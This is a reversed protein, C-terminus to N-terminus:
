FAVENYIVEGNTKPIRVFVIHNKRPDLKLRVLKRNSPTFVEVSPEKLELRAIQFDKPLMRWQRTDARNMTLSYVAGLIGGITGGRKQLEYSIVTQTVTRTIARTMILPFRKKFETKVVKDMSAVQKTKVVTTKNKISLYRYARPGEKFSPLAIGAYYVKNTVLFLPINFRKEIKKPGEGDSFIIWVYRRKGAGHLSSAAKLAYKLDEKVYPAAPEDDKIMGYTEKLIDAAKAYDGASIFYLGSMYSAFPNVFDPYPKFAFLNSYKQMIVDETKKNTITKKAQKRQHPDISVNKKKLKKNAEKKIEHKEREIEKAFFEKARRQRELARNFEIRASAVDQQNMFDMGKYTNVMIGEYIKPRYDMFTDNTLVAGTNALFKQALIEEDYQKIKGESKDFFYISQNFDQAYRSVLGADLYWLLDDKEQKTLKKALKKYGGAKQVSAYDASNGLNGASPMIGACGTFVMMGALFGYLSKKGMFEGM